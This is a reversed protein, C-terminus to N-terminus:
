GGNAPSVSVWGHGSCKGRCRSSCLVADAALCLSDAASCGGPRRKSPLARESCSLVADQRRGAMLSENRSCLVGTPSRPAGAGGGTSLPAAGQKQVSTDSAALAKFSECCCPCRFICVCVRRRRFRCRVVGFVLLCLNCKIRQHDCLKKWTKSWKHQRRDDGTPSPAHHHTTTPPPQTTTENM